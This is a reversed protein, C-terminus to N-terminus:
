TVRGTARAARISPTGTTRCSCFATGPIALRRAALTALRIATPTSAAAAAKGGSRVVTTPLGTRGSSARRSRAARRSSATAAKPSSGPRRVRNTNPPLWPARRMLWATTSAVAWQGSGAATWTRCAQPRRSSASTRAAQAPASGSPRPSSTLITGNTSRM